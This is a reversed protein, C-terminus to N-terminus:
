VGKGLDLFLRVEVVGMSLKKAIEVDSLGKDALTKIVSRKDFQEKDSMDDGENSNDETNLVSEKIQEFSEQEKEQMNLRNSIELQKQAKNLNEVTEDLEKQKDSLLGYLFMVENHNKNIRDMVKDSYQDVASLKERSLEELEKETQKKITSASMKASLGLKDEVQNMREELIRELYEDSHSEQEYNEKVFFGIILTAIGIIFLIIIVALM